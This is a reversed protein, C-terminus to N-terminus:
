RGPDPAKKRLSKVMTLTNIGGARSYRVDDMIEKMIYLGMGGQPLSAIDEPDYKLRPRSLKSPPLGAGRDSVQFEVRDACIAIGVSVEQGPKGGYAHQIANTVAEVVCLEIKNSELEDCGVHRCIKNVALGVLHVNDTRSEITLQIAQQTM